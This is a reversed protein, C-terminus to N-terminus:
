RWPSLSPSLPIKLEFDGDPSSEHGTGLAANQNFVLSTSSPVALLVPSTPDMWGPGSCGVTVRREACGGQGVPRGGMAPPHWAHPLATPDGGRSKPVGSVWATQPGAPSGQSVEDGRGQEPSHPSPNPSKPATELRQQATGHRRRRPASAPSPTPPPEVTRVGPATIQPRPFQSAGLCPHADSAACGTRSALTVTVPCTVFKDWILKQPSPSVRPPTKNWVGAVTQAPPPHLQPQM